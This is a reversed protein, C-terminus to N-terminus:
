EDAKRRMGPTCKAPELARMARYIKVAVEEDSQCDDDRHVKAGAAIMEPTVTIEEHCRRSLCLAGTIPCVIKPVPFSLWEADIVLHKTTM